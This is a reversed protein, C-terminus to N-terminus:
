QSCKKNKKKREIEAIGEDLDTFDPTPCSQWEGAIATAAWNSVSSRMGVLRREMWTKADKFGIKHFQKLQPNTHVHPQECTLKRRTNKVLM